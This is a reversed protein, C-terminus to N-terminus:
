TGEEMVPVDIWDSWEWKEPPCDSVLAESLPYQYCYQLVEENPQAPTHSRNLILRRIKIM